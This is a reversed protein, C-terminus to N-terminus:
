EHILKTSSASVASWITSLLLALHDSDMWDVGSGDSVREIGSLRKRGLPVGCGLEKIELALLYEGAAPLIGPVNLLDRFRAVVEGKLSALQWQDDHPIGLAIDVGEDIDTAMAPVRHNQVLASILLRKLTV